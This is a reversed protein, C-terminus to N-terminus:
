HLGTCKGVEKYEIRLLAGDRVKLKLKKLIHSFQLDINLLSVLFQWCSVKLASCKLFAPEAGESAGISVKIIEVEQLSFYKDFLLFLSGSVNTGDALSNLM